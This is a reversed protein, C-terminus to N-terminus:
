VVQDVPIIKRLVYPSDTFNILPPPYAPTVGKLYSRTFENYGINERNRVEIVWLMIFYFVTIVVITATFIKIYYIQDM